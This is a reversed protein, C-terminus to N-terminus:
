KRSIKVLRPPDCYPCEGGWKDECKSCFIEGCQECKFTAKKGCEVCLLKPKM